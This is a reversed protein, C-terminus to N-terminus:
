NLGNVAYYEIKLKRPSHEKRYAVAANYCDYCVDIFDLRSKKIRKGNKLQRKCGACTFPHDERYTWIVEKEEIYDVITHLNAQRRKIIDPAQVKPQKPTSTGRNTTRSTVIDSASVDKVFAKPIKQMLHRNNAYDSFHYREYHALVAEATPPVSIGCGDCKCIWM